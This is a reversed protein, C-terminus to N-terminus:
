LRRVVSEVDAKKWPRGRYTYGLRNIATAVNAPPENRYQRIIKILAQEDPEMVMEYGVLKWGYQAHRGVRKGESAMHRMAISTRESTLHPTFQNFSLMVNFMVEGIATGTSLSVGGEDALHLSIGREKWEDAMVSGDSVRRFIRDLRAVIVHSVEGNRCMEVLRGGQERDVLKTKYASVEPDRLVESIELGKMEAYRSCTQEQVALTMADGPDPRPSFRCYSVVKGMTM